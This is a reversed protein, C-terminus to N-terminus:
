APPKMKWQLQFRTGLLVLYSPLWAVIAHQMLTFPRIQTATHGDVLVVLVRWNLSPSLFFLPREPTLRADVFHSVPQGAKSLRGDSIASPTVRRSARGMTRQTTTRCTRHPHFASVFPVLLSASEPLSSTSSQQKQANHAFCKMEPRPRVKFLFPSVRPQL